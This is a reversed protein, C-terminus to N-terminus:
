KLWGHHFFDKPISYELINEPHGTKYQKIKEAICLLANELTSDVHWRADDDNRLADPDRSMAIHRELMKEKVRDSFDKHLLIELEDYSFEFAMVHHRLEELAKIFEDRKDKEVATLLAKMILNRNEDRTHARPTKKEQKAHGSVLIKREVPRASKLNGKFRIDADKRERRDYKVRCKPRSCILRDKDTIPNKCFKCNPM